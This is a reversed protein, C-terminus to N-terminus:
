PANPAHVSLYRGDAEVSHEVGRPVQVFTGAAACLLRDRVTFDVVEELVYLSEVSGSHVQAPESDSRQVVSIADVDVATGVSAESLPRGGDETPEYEYFPVPRKDGLGRMYDAFGSGAHPLEPLPRGCGVRQAVRPRGDAARAGGVGAPVAVEDGDPGLKVTLEDDLVCFVDSHHRHVHLSARDHRPGFRSWTARVANDESPIEVRRQPSDGIIEGERAGVASM